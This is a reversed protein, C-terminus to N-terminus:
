LPQGFNSLLHKEPDSGQTRPITAGSVSNRGCYASVCVFDREESLARAVGPNAGAGGDGGNLFLLLPHQKAPDYNRPLFVTMRAPTSNKASIAHFTPPMDAFTVIVTGGPVLKLAEDAAPASLALWGSALLV